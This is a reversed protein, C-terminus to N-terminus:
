AAKSSLMRFMNMFYMQGKGTIKPTKTIHSGSAGVRTGEKIVFIGLDMSRQTPMNRDSGTKHLYGNQRLWEFFREGGIDLGTSQKILKAMERVLITDESVALAEALVVKPRDREAQEELAARRSREAKLAHLTQIMTDPDALMRELTAPTAYAGHRRISPIVDEVVWDQFREADQLNSRMVLRYMDSEPIINYPQPSNGYSFKNVKKCHANIADNPREYGLAKAVDSAVFWPEGGHDVVRVAGFAVHEFIKLENM